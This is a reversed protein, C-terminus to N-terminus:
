SHWRENKRNQQFVSTKQPIHRKNSMDRLQVVLMSQNSVNKNWDPPFFLRFAQIKQLFNSVNM